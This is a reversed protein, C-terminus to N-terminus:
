IDQDIELIYKLVDFGLSQYFELAKENRAWVNLRIQKYKSKIHEILKRGIGQHQFNKDVCLDDIFFYDGEEWGILYAITNKEQEYVIVTIQEDDILDIVEDLTYKSGTNKFHKPYLGKHLDFIDRLLELIKESDRKKALRIHYNM